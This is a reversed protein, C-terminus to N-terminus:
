DIVFNDLYLNGTLASSAKLEIKNDGEKLSIEQEVTKWDSLSEGKPLSLTTVKEGNVYLDVNNIDADASYRLTMNATGATKNTVTDKVAADAKTGFKLYGQGQFKTVNEDCGNTVVQAVNKSDFFEAEYQRPGTYEEPFAPEVLSSETYSTLRETANGACNVKIDVPGNHQVTLTYVGNNWSESVSSRMQNVGRHKITYTPQSSAGYIKITNTKLTTPAEEDYNNLYFDIHDSYEKILGSAYESYAVEIQSCTNYKPIFYGGAMKGNKNPNYTVWINENRGAYFSGWSEEPFMENFENQKDQITKWRSEITSQKIQVEISKALDDKLKYITPITPYRGTCKFPNRNYALNGDDEMRYLGEFLNPYTGYLDDDRSPHTWTPRNSTSVDQIVAVKTRDIVEERSPIRVTGDLVKRFLDIMDNQFQDFMAWNRSRYGESDTTAGIEKFDDQWVLEPGDIVTLGNLALRELHMPLGTAVRYEDKTVKEGEEGKYTSDSWGSDDYRIGFNGCYGSIYYGYVLSEVDNIYSVQTYKEELIFNQSYERCAAEWEPVQKLMAIPNIGQGWQNVCWSVDLYGGYKNCLKLLAAFHQYREPCSPTDRGHEENGDDERWEFGWFQECYNYGIFNPYDRFFEEFITGELDDDAEYDPFHCLGGSAPQIMAWVGKEACTRLWSKATEYGDHVRLWKKNKGDWNISLSINFVVYPLIDEPILDIIKAPDAYNWSDIHVIWMPQEPSIPRRLNSDATRVKNVANETDATNLKEPSLYELMQNMSEMDPENGPNFPPLGIFMNFLMTVSLFVACLKNWIM